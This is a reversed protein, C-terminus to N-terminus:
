GGWAALPPRAADAAPRGASATRIPGAAAAATPLSPLLVFVNYTDKTETKRQCENLARITSAVLLPVRINLRRTIASFLTIALPVYV